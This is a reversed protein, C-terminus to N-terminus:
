WVWKGELALRISSVKSGWSTLYTLSSRARNSFSAFPVAAVVVCDAAESRGCGVRLFCAGGRVLWLSIHRSVDSRDSDGGLGDFSDTAGAIRNTLGVMRLGFPSGELFSRGADDISVRSSLLVSLGFLGDVLGM